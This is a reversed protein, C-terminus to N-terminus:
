KGDTVLLAGYNGGTKNPLQTLIEGYDSDMVLIVDGSGAATSSWLTSATSPDASVTFNPFAKTNLAPKICGKEILSFLEKTNPLRWSDYGAFKHLKHLAKSNIDEIEKLATQWQTGQSEGTCTAQTRDWTKGLPCRMWVLGTKLDKVTGNDQAIFRSNPASKTIDVSCTQALAGSSTLTILMTLMFKKM